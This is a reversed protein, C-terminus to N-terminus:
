ERAFHIFHYSEMMQMYRVVRPYVPEAEDGFQERQLVALEMVTRKGDILPWLFSGYRELHVKTYRPRGFFKQAMRNFVGTNEAELTVLGNEDSSWSLEAARRPIRDLYNTM